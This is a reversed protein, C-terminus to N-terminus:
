WSSQNWLLPPLPQISLVRTGLARQRTCRPQSTCLGFAPSSSGSAPVEGSVRHERFAAWGGMTKHLLSFWYGPKVSYLHLAPVAHVLSWTGWGRCGCFPIWSDGFGKEMDCSPSIEPADVHSLETAGCEPFCHCELGGGGPQGRRVSSSSYRLHACDM